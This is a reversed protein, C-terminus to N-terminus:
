QPALLSRELVHRADEYKGRLRARDSSDALMDLSSLNHWNDALKVLRGLPDAAARDILEPYPEGERRTVSQVAEIVRVPYGLTSLREGTV